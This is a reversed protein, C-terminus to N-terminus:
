CLRQDLVQGRGQAPSTSAPASAAASEGDGKWSVSHWGATREGDFVTRVRRGQLDFIELTV